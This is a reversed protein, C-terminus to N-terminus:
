VDLDKIFKANETIFAFRKQPKSGMLDDVFKAIDITGEEGQGPLCVRMLKRSKPAM